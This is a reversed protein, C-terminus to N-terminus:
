AAADDLDMEGGDIKLTFPEDDPVEFPAPQQAYGHWANNSEAVALKELWGLYRSRGYDIARPGLQYLVCPYPAANEVVAIMPERWKSGGCTGFMGITLKM